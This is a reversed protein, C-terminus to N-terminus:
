DATGHGPRLRTTTSGSRAPPSARHRGAQRRRQRGRALILTPTGTIQYALATQPNADVDLSVVHLRDAEDAATQQLVPAVM